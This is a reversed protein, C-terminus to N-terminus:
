HSDMARGRELRNLDQLPFERLRRDAFRRSWAEAVGVEVLRHLEMELPRPSRREDRIMGVDSLQPDVDSGGPLDTTARLGSQRWGSEDTASRDTKSRAGGGAVIEIAMALENAAAPTCPSM